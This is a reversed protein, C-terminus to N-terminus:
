WDKKGIMLLGYIFISVVAYNKWVISIHHMEGNNRGHILIEKLVPRNRQEWNWIIHLIIYEHLLEDECMIWITTPKIRLCHKISQAVDHKMSGCYCYIECGQSHFEQLRM